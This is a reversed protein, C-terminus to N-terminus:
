KLEAHYQKLTKQIERETPVGNLRALKDLSKQGSSTMRDYEWYLDVILKPLENKLKMLEKLRQEIEDHMNTMQNEMITQSNRRISVHGM